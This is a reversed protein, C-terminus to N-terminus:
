PSNPLLSQRRTEKVEARDRERRLLSAPTGAPRDGALGTRAIRADDPRMEFNLIKHDLEIPQRSANPSPATMAKTLTLPAVTAPMMSLTGITGGPNRSDQTERTAHITRTRSSSNREREEGAVQQSQQHENRQGRGDDRAALRAGRGKANCAHEPLV